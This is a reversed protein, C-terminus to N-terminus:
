ESSKIWRLVIHEYPLRIETFYIGASLQSINLKLNGSEDIKLRQRQILKGEVSLILVDVDTSHTDMRLNLENGSAPQPYILISQSDGQITSTVNVEVTESISSCGAESTVEVSFNGNGPIALSDGTEGDIPQDDQFWQLEGDASAVLYAGDITIQPINPLADVTVTLTDFAECGNAATTQLILNGSQSLEISADCTNAFETGSPSIWACNGTGSGNLQIEEGACVQQNQGANVSPIPLIEVELTDSDSGIENTATLIYTGSQTILLSSTNGGVNWSYSDTGPVMGNILVSGCASIDDGLDVNPASASEFAGMDPNPLARAFGRIDTTVGLDTGLNELLPNGIQLIDPFLGTYMPDAIISHQDGGTVSQIFPLDNTGGILVTGNTHYINYDCTSNTTTSYLLAIGTGTNAFVNNRIDLNSSGSLNLAYNDTDLSNHRVSNHWIDCNNLNILRMCMGVAIVDVGLSTNLLNNVIKNRFGSSGSGNNILYLASSGQAGAANIYNNSIDFRNLGLGYFAYNTNGGGGTIFNNRIIVNTWNRADLADGGLIQSNEIILNYKVPGTGVLNCAIGAGGIIRCSRITLNSDIFAVMSHTSASSTSSSFARTECNELTIYKGRTIHMPAYNNVSANQVFSMHKFGFYSVENLRVTSPFDVSGSSILEVLSSDESEGEFWIWANPGSGKVPNLFMREFYDGNRVKFTVNGCIGGNKLNLLATSFSSFTPNVGGITYTGNLGTYLDTYISYDDAAYLDTGGNPSNLQVEIYNSQFNLLPFSGLQVTIQQGSLLNGTWNLTTYEGNVGSQIEVSTLPVLGSNVLKISLPLQDCYVSDASPNILSAIGASLNVPSFEDAGIDPTTASRPQGDIDTTISVPTGINNLNAPLLHLDTESLYGPNLSV